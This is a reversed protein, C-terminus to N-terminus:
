FWPLIEDEVVSTQLRACLLLGFLVLSEVALPTQESLLAFLWSNFSFFLVFFFFFDLVFM